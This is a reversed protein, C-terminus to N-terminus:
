FFPLLLILFDVMEILLKCSVWCMDWFGKEFWGGLGCRPVASAGEEKLMSRWAGGESGLSRKWAACDLEEERLKRQESCFESIDAVPM